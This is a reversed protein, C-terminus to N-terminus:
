GFSIGLQVIWHNLFIALDGVMHHQPMRPLLVFAYTLNHITPNPPDLNELSIHNAQIKKDNKRVATPHTEKLHDPIPEDFHVDPAVTQAKPQTEMELDEEVDEDDLTVDILYAPIDEVISSEAYDGHPEPGNVLNVLKEGEDEIGPSDTGVAVEVQDKELSAIPAPLGDPDPIDVSSLLDEFFAHRGEAFEQDPRWDRPFEALIEDNDIMEDDSLTSIIDELQDDEGPEQVDLLSDANVGLSSLDNPPNALRRALDGAQSRIESFPLETEFALALVYEGGLGTAYLMYEGNNVELRIFRALDSGGDHAWYHWVSQALEEAAPRSLQGAYAWLNVNRTILAAQAASELSLLTLHQAARDVDQLWEPARRPGSSKKGKLINSPFTTKYETEVSEDEPSEIDATLKELVELFDPLSFVGDLFNAVQLGERISTVSETEDKLAIIRVDPDIAYLEAILESPNPEVDFDLVAIPFEGTRTYELLGETDHVLTVRYLDSDQLNRQIFEGFSRVPTMVLVSFAM